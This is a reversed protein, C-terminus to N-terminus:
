NNLYCMRGPYGLIRGRWFMPRINLGASVCDVSYLANQQADFSTAFTHHTSFECPSQERTRLNQLGFTRCDSIFPEENRLNQLGFTRLDSIFTRYDSSGEFVNRKQAFTVTDISKSTVQLELNAYAHYVHKAQVM